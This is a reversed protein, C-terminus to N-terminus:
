VFVEFKKNKEEAMDKVKHIKMSPLTSSSFPFTIAGPLKGRQQIEKTIIEAIQVKFFLKGGVHFSKEM